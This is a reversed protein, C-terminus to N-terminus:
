YLWLSACIHQAPVVMQLVAFLRDSSHALCFKKEINLAYTYPHSSMRCALPLSIKQRHSSTPRWNKSALLCHISFKLQCTQRGKARVDLSYLVKQSCPRESDEEPVWKKNKRYIFFYIYYIFEISLDGSRHNNSCSKTSSM